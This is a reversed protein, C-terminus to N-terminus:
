PRFEISRAIATAGAALGEKPYYGLKAPRTQAGCTLEGKGNAEGVMQFKTPSDIAVKLLGTDTKFHLVAPDSCELNVLTGIAYTMPDDLKVELKGEVVEETDETPAVIKTQEATFVPEARQQPPDKMAFSFWRKARDKEADTGSLKVFQSAAARADEIKGLYWAAQIYAPFWNPAQRRSIKPISRLTNVSTQFERNYLQLEALRIRADTYAPYKEVVAALIERAVTQDKVFAGAFYGLNPHVSGLSRAKAFATDAGESRARWRVLTLSEWAEPRQPQMNTLAELRAAAQDQRRAGDLLDATAVGWEYDTVPRPAVKEDVKDFEVEYQVVRITNGRIYSQLDKEVEAISKNFVQRFADEPDVGNALTTSLRAFNNKYRDDLVLMHVLAWSIGYFPGAHQRRNYYKSDHGAGVVETLPIWDNRIRLIHEPIPTGVRVIKKIQEINSYLEAVGENMWVPLPTDTYRVLLHIYEHVAVRRDHDGTTPGMAIYDRQLLPVYHAASVANMAYDRYNKENQFVVIRPKLVPDKTALIKVFFSRVREFQALIEQARGRSGDTILEFHDTEYVTYKEAAFTLATTATLLLLIRNM